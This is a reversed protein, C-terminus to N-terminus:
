YGYELRITLARINYHQVATINYTASCKLSSNWIDMGLPKIIIIKNMEEHFLLNAYIYIYGNFWILVFEIAMM